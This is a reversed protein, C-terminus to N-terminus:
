DASSCTVFFFAIKGHQLTNVNVTIKQSRRIEDFITTRGSSAMKETASFEAVPSRGDIILGRDALYNQVGVPDLYQDVKGLRKEEDEGQVLKPCSAMHPPTYQEERIQGYSNANDASMQLMLALHGKIEERTSVFLCDRFRGLLKEYSTEPAAIMRYAAKMATDWLRMPFSMRGQSYNSNPSQLLRTDIPLRTANGDANTNLMLSKNNEASSVLVPEASSVAESPGPGISQLNVNTADPHLQVPSSPKPVKEISSFSASLRYSAENKRLERVRDKDAESLSPSSVILGFWGDAVTQM